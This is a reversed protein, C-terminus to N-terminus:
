NGSFNCFFKSVGSIPNMRISFHTHMIHSISMINNYVGSLDVNAGKM